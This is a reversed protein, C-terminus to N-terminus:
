AAAEVRVSDASLPSTSRAPEKKEFCECHTHSTSIYASAPDTPCSKMKLVMRSNPASTHLVAVVSRLNRLTTHDTNQNPWWMAATWAMPATM